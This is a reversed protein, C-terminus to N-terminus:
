LPLVGHGFFCGNRVILSAAAKGAHGHPDIVRICVSLVSRARLALVTTNSRGSMM